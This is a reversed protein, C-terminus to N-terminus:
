IYLGLSTYWIVYYIHFNIIVIFIYTYFHMTHTLLLLTVVVRWGDVSESRLSQNSQNAHDLCYVRHPRCLTIILQCHVYTHIHALFFTLLFVFLFYFYHRLCALAETPASRASYRYMDYMYFMYKM